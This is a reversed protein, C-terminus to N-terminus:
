GERTKLLADHVLNGRVGIRSRGLIWCEQKCRGYCWGAVVQLMQDMIRFAVAAEFLKDSAKGDTVDDKFALSIAWEGLM